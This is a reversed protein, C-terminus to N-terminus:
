LLMKYEDKVRIKNNVIGSPSTLIYYDYYKKNFKSSYITGEKSNNSIVMEPYYKKFLDFAKDGTFYLKNINPFNNLISILDIQKINLLDNDKSSYKNTINNYNHYCEKVIDIFGIKHKNIFNIRNNKIEEKSLSKDILSNDEFNKWFYNNSSGYFFYIDNKRNLDEICIFRPPMSGIVLKETNNNIYYMENNNGWLPHKTIEINM